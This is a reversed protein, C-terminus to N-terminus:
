SCSNLYPLKLNCNLNYCIKISTGPKSVYTVEFDGNKAKTPEDPWLGLKTKTNSQKQVDM